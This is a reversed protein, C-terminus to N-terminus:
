LAEVKGLHHSALRLTTSEPAQLECAPSRDWSREKLTDNLTDPLTLPQRELRRFGGVKSLLCDILALETGDRAARDASSGSSWSGKINKHDLGDELDDGMRLANCYPDPPVLRFRLDNPLSHFRDFDQSLEMYEARSSVRRVVNRVHLRVNWDM